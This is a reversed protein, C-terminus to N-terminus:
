SLSYTISLQKVDKRRSIWRPTLLMRTAAARLLFVNLLHVILPMYKGSLTHPVRVCARKLLYSTKNGISVELFKYRKPTHPTLLLPTCRKFHLLNPFIPPLIEYNQGNIPRQHRKKSCRVCVM